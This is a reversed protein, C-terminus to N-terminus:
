FGQLEPRKLLYEAVFVDAANNLIFPSGSIARILPRSHSSSMSRPRDWIDNALGRDRLLRELHQKWGTRVMDRPTTRFIPRTWSAFAKLRETRKSEAIGNFHQDWLTVTTQAHGPKGDLESYILAFGSLDLLDNLPDSLLLLKTEASSGIQESIRLSGRFAIE